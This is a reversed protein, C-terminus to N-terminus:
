CDRNIFCSEPIKTPICITFHINRLALKFTIKCNYFGLHCSEQRVQANILSEDVKLFTQEGSAGIWTACRGFKSGLNPIQGPIAFWLERRAAMEHM